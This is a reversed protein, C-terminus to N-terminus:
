VQVKVEQEAERRKQEVTKKLKFNRDFKFTM